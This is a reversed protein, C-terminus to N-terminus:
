PPVGPVASASAVAGKDEADLGLAAKQLCRLEACGAKALEYATACGIVGGGVVLVKM